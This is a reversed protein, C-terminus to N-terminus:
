RATGELVRPGRLLEANQWGFWCLTAAAIAVLLLAPLAGGSQQNPLASDLVLAPGLVAGLWPMVQRPTFGQRRALWVAGAAVAAVLPFFYPMAFGVVSQGVANDRMRLAIADAYVQTAFTPFVLTAGFLVLFAVGSAVLWWTRLGAGATVGVIWAACGAVGFLGLPIGLIEGDFSIGASAIFLAGALALGWRAAPRAQLAVFALVVGAAETQMAFQLGTHSPTLELIDFGYFSHWWLDTAGFLLHGAAGLGSILFPMPAQLRGIRVVAGPVPDGSRSVLLVVVLSTFGILGSGTYFMLHPATFFTDPGVDVHWQGDWAVGLWLLTFGLLLLWAGRRVVVM